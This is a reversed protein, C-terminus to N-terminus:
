RRLELFLLAVRRRSRQAKTAQEVTFDRTYKDKFQSSGSLKDGFNKRARKKSRRDSCFILDM